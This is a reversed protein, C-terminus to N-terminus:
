FAWGVSVSPATLLVGVRAMLRGRPAQYRYGLFPMPYPNITLETNPMYWLGMAAEFHHAMKPHSLWHVNLSFGSFMVQPGWGGSFLGRHGHSGISLAISPKLRREVTLGTGITISHGSKIFQWNTYVASRASLDSARTTAQVIPEYIAVPDTANSTGQTSKIKEIALDAPESETTPEEQSDPLAPGTNNFLNFEATTEEQPLDLLDISSAAPENNGLLNFEETEVESNSPSDGLIDFAPSLVIPSENSPPVEGAEALRVSRVEEYSIRLMSGDASRILYGTKGEDVVVGSVVQGDQLEFVKTTEAWAPTSILTITLAFGWIRIPHQKSNRYFLQLQM